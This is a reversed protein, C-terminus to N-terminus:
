QFNSPNRTPINTYLFLTKRKTQYLDWSNIPNHSTCILKYQFDTLIDVIKEFYLSEIELQWKWYLFSRFQDLLQVWM